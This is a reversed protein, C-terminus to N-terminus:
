RCRRGVVHDARRRGGVHGPWTPVSPVAVSFAFKVLRVTSATPSRRSRRGSRSRRPWRCASRGRGTSRPAVGARRDRAVGLGAGSVIESCASSRRPRAPCGRRSRRRGCRAARPCSTCGPRRDLARDGEPPARPATPFHGPLRVSEVYVGIKHPNKREEGQGGRAAHPLMPPCYIWPARAARWPPSAASEARRHGAVGDEFRAAEGLLELAEDGDVADVELHPAARDVREDAGVAGALGGGEVQEGLEQRGGGPVIRKLPWSMVRSCGASTARRPM